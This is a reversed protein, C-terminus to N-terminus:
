ASSPMRSQRKDRPSPSTYLLCGTPKECFCTHNHRQTSRIYTVVHQAYIWCDLYRDLKTTAPRQVLRYCSCRTFSIHKEGATSAASARSTGYRRRSTLQCHPLHRAPAREPKRRPQSLCRLLHWPLPCCRFLRALPCEVTTVLGLSSTVKNRTHTSATTKHPTSVKVRTNGVRTIAAADITSTIKKTHARPNEREITASRARKGVDTRRM